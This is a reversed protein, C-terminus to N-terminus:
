QRQAAGRRHGRRFGEVSAEIHRSREERAQSDTTVQSNLKRNREMAEQFIKIARALAGIEDARGTHPVEVHEAGDAVHKITTTIVSLPRAISRAIIVIGVVVLVLALGGLCTLM